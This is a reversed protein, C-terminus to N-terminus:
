GHPKESTPEPTPAAEALASKVPWFFSHLNTRARARIARGIRSRDVGSVNHARLALRFAM